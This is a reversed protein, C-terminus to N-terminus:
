WTTDIRNGWYNPADPDTTSPPSAGPFSPGSAGSRPEKCTRRHHDLNVKLLATYSLGGAPLPNYDHVNITVTGLYTFDCTNDWDAWFAVYEYSGKDRSAPTARPLAQGPLHGRADGHQQGPRPM